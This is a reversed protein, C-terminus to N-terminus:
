MRPYGNLFRVKERSLNLENWAENDDLRLDTWCKPCQIPVAWFGRVDALAQEIPTSVMGVHLNLEVTASTDVYGAKELEAAMLAHIHRRQKASLRTFYGTPLGEAETVELEATRVIRAVAVSTVWRSRRSFRVVPRGDITVIRAATAECLVGKRDAQCIVHVREQEAM